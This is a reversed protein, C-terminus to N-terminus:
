NELLKSIYRRNYTKTLRIKKVREIGGINPQALEFFPEFLNELLVFVLRM